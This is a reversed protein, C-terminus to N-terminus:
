GQLLVVCWAKSLITACALGSLMDLQQCAMNNDVAHHVYVCATQTFVQQCLKSSMM